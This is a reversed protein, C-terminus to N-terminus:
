RQVARCAPCHGYKDLEVSESGHALCSGYWPRVARFPAWSAVTEAGIEVDFSDEPSPEFAWLDSKDLTTFMEPDDADYGYSWVEIGARVLAPVDAADVLSGLSEFRNALEGDTPPDYTSYCFPCTPDSEASHDTVHEAYEIDRLDDMTTTM